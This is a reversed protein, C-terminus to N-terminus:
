RAHHSAIEHNGSVARLKSVTDARTLIPESCTIWNFFSLRKVYRSEGSEGFEAQRRTAGSADQM